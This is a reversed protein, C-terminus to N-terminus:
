SWDPLCAMPPPHQAPEGGTVEGPIGISDSTSGLYSQALADLHGHSWPQVFSADGVFAMNESGLVHMHSAHLPLKELYDWGINDQQLTQPALFVAEALQQPALLYKAGAEYGGDQGVGAGQAEPCGHITLDVAETPATPMSTAPLWGVEAAFGTSEDWSSWQGTPLHVPMPMALVLPDLTANADEGEAHICTAATTSSDPSTTGALSTDAPVAPEQPDDRPGPAAQERTDAQEPPVTDGSEVAHLAEEKEATPVEKTKKKRALCLLLRELPPSPTRTVREKLEATIERREYRSRAATGVEAAMSCGSELSASKPLSRSAQLSCNDNRKRKTGALSSKDRGADTM